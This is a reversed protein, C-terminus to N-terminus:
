VEFNEKARSPRNRFNRERVYKGAEKFQRLIRNVTGHGRRFRLAIDSLCEGDNWARLLRDKAKDDLDTTAKM